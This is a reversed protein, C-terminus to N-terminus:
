MAMYYKDIVRSKIKQATEVDVGCKIIMNLIAQKRIEDDLAARKLDGVLEEFSKSSGNPRAQESKM